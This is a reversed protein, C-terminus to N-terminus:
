GGADHPIAAGDRSVGAFYGRFGNMRATYEADDAIYWEKQEMQEWVRQILDAVAAAECVNAKEIM